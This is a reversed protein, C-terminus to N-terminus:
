RASISTSGASRTNPPQQPVSTLWTAAMPWRQTAGSWAVLSRTRPSASAPQCSSATAPSAAGTASAGRPPRAAPGDGARCRGQAPRCPGARVPGNAAWRDRLLGARVACPEPRDLATQCKGAAPRYHPMGRRDGQRALGCSVEHWVGTRGAKAHEDVGVVHGGLVGLRDELLDGREAFGRDPPDVAVPRRCPQVGPRALHRRQPQDRVLLEGIGLALVGRVDTQHDGRHIEQM